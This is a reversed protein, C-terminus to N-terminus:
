LFNNNGIDYKINISSFPSQYRSFIVTAIVGIIISIQILICSWLLFRCKTSLINEKKSQDKPISPEQM